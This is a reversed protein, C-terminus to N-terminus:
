SWFGFHLMGWGGMKCTTYTRENYSIIIILLLLFTINIEKTFTYNVCVYKNKSSEM